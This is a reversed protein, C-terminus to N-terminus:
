ALPLRYRVDPEFTDADALGNAKVVGSNDPTAPWADHRDPASTSARYTSTVWLPCRSLAVVVRDCSSRVVWVLPSSVVPRGPISKPIPAM